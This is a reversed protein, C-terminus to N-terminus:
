KSTNKGGSSKSAEITQGDEDDELVSDEMKGITYMDDTKKHEVMLYGERELVDVVKKYIEDYYTLLDDAQITKAYAEIEDREKKFLNMVLTDIVRYYKKYNHEFREVSATGMAKHWIKAQSVRFKWQPEPNHEEAKELDKIKVM